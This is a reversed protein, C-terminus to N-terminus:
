KASGTILPRYLTSVSDDVLEGTKTLRFSFITKEQNHRTLVVSSQLIQRTAEFKTRVSVVVKVPVVTGPPIHGYMHANVTYQGPPIGRSYSVEYNLTPRM